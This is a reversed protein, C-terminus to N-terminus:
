KRIGPETMRYADLIGTIEKESMLKKKLILERVSSGTKLAEKAVAATQEYGLYPVFATVIGISNKVIEGCHERNVTIGSICNDTLTRVAGTLTRISM